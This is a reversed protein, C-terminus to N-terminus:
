CVEVNENTWNWGSQFIQEFSLSPSTLTLHSHRTQKCRSSKITFLSLFGYFDHENKFIVKFMLKQQLNNVAVIWFGVFFNRSVKQQLFRLSSWTWTPRCFYATQLSLFHWSYIDSNLALSLLCCKKPKSLHM